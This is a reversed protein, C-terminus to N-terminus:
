DTYSKHERWRSGLRADIRRKAAARRDNLLYVSRALEVFAPGFDQDLEHQRLADEVEWLRANIARLAGVEPEQELAGNSREWIALLGALRERVHSAAPGDLHAAKLELITIRDVVESEPVEIQM